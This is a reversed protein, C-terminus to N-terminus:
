PEELLEVHIAGAQRLLEATQEPSFRPDTAEIAIFFRDDTVRAFRPSEFLPHHWRPLRGLAIWGLVAAIAAFLVGVEFTIPIFAQWSFYPKAAIILPYDVGHIWWQLAFAAGAGTFGAVLVIWPLPSPTLGMAREIGHVPFPSLSDWHRYGADRVKRCARLLVGPSDFEALLGYPKRADAM